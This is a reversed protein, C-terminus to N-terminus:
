SAWIWGCDFAASLKRVRRAAMVNPFRPSLSRMRVTVLLMGASPLDV